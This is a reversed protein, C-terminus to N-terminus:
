RLGIPLMAYRRMCVTLWRVALYLSGRRLMISQPMNRLALLWAREGASQWRTMRRMPMSGANSMRVRNAPSNIPASRLWYM